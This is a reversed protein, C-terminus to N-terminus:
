GGAVDDQTHVGCDNELPGFERGVFFRDAVVDCRTEANIEIAHVDLALRVFANVSDPFSACNFHVRDNEKCRVDFESEVRLASAISRTM